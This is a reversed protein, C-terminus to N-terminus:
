RLASDLEAPGMLKEGLVLDRVTRGTALSEKFLSAAKQYGLRPALLTVVLPSREVGARLKEGDAGLGDVLNAAFVPVFNSLTDASDLVARLMGPLMVNLEFQGAGAAQAVAADNGAVGFCVMNMSEALSPNVKGPMISSGAHVAPISLEALGELPGSAMLRIDSSIRGIELALNRLASSAAAVAFRSQLAYQMDPEPSLKLKSLRALESVARRRYGRPANAGTGVATGGLAVRRLGPRSADLSGSARSVSTAYAAFEGGLTVPLADMLHTRGIKRHGAFERAKRALSSQLKKSADLVRGVGFLVAVHMATPFTDNSSQSMNVHDNPHLHRYQGKKRGMSVLAANAVVENVNMNLATGAGSNISDVAFQGDLKGALAADCAKRIAAAREADLAGVAENASAASRKIMVFARVLDPHSPRGTATYQALARQTFPGWYAGSPVRVKGLSDEDTRYGAVAWAGGPKGYIAM